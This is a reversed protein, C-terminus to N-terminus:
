DFYKVANLAGSMKLGHKKAITIRQLLPSGFEDIRYLLLRVNFNTTEPWLLRERQKGDADLNRLIDFSVSGPATNKLTSCEVIIAGGRSINKLSLHIMEKTESECLRRMTFQGGNQLVRIAYAEFLTGAYGEAGSMPTLDKHAMKLVEMPEKALKAALIRETYRSVLDFQSAGRYDLDGADVNKPPSWLVLSHVIAQNEGKSTQQSSVM